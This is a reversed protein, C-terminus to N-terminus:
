KEPIWQLVRKPCVSHLNMHHRCCQLQTGPYSIRQFNCLILMMKLSIKRFLLKLNIGQHIHINFAGNASISFINMYFNFFLFMKLYFYTLSTCILFYKNPFLCCWIGANSFQWKWFHQHSQSCWQLLHELQCLCLLRTWSWSLNMDCSWCWMMKWSLNHDVLVM